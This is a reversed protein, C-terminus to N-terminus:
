SDSILHQQLLSLFFSSPLIGLHQTLVSMHMSYLLGNQVANLRM